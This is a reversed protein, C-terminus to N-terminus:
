FKTLSFALAKKSKHDELLFIVYPLLPLPTKPAVQFLQLPHFPAESGAHTAAPKVGPVM